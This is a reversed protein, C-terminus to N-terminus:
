PPITKQCQSVTHQPQQRRLNLIQDKGNKHSPKLRFKYKIKYIQINQKERENEEYGGLDNQKM